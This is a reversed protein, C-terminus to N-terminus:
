GYNFYNFFPPAKDLRPCIDGGSLLFFDRFGAGLIPSV